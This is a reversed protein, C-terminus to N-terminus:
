TEFDDTSFIYMKYHTNRGGLYNLDYWSIVTDYGVVPHWTQNLSHPLAKM